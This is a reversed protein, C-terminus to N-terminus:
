KGCIYMYSDCTSGGGAWDTLIRAAASATYGSPCSCGGTLPNAVACQGACASGAGANDLIQFEGGYLLFPIGPLHPDSQTAQGNPAAQALATLGGFPEADQAAALSTPGLILLFGTIAVVAWLGQKQLWEAM